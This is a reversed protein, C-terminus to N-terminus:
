ESFQVTAGDPLGHEERRALEEMARYYSEDATFPRNALIETTKARNEETKERAKDLKRRLQIVQEKSPAVDVWDVSPVFASRKIKRFDLPQGREAGLMPETEFYVYDLLLNLDELAWTEIITETHVQDSFSPLLDEISQPEDVKYKFFKMGESTRDATEDLGALDLRGLIQPFEMVYPGFHYFIWKWDTLTSRHRRYYEVDILYIIKLLKTRSPFGEMDAIQQAVYLILREATTM